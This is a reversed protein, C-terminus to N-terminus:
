VTKYSSLHSFSYGSWRRGTAASAGPRRDQAGIGWSSAAKTGVIKSSAAKTGVGNSFGIPRRNATGQRRLVPTPASARQRTEPAM